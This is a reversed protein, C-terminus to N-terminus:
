VGASDYGQAAEGQLRMFAKDDPLAGAEPNANPLACGLPATAALSADWTPVTPNV